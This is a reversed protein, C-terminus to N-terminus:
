EASGRGDNQFGYDDDGKNQFSAQISGVNAKPLGLLKEIKESTAAAQGEDATIIGRFFNDVVQYTSGDFRSVSFRSVQSKTKM